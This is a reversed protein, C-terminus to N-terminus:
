NREESPPLAFISLTTDGYRRQTRRVLIGYGDAVTDRSSHELAALADPALLGPRGLLLLVEPVGSLAYPPDLLVVGFPGQLTPLVQEVRGRHVRGQSSFGIRELNQHIAQCLRADQEVFDASAAGRSLAEIGLAGIGAYLDLVATEEVASGLLQFLANRVRESTPRLKAGRPVALPLGRATGGTIRM